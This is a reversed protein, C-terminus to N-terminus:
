LMNLFALIFRVFILIVVKDACKDHDKINEDVIVVDPTSQFIMYISLSLRITTIALQIIVEQQSYNSGTTDISWYEKSSITCHLTQALQAIYHNILICGSLTTFKQHSKYHYICNCM